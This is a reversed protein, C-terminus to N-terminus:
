EEKGKFFDKAEQWTSKRKNRGGLHSHWDTFDKSYELRRVPTFMNTTDAIADNTTKFQWSTGDIEKAMPIFGSLGFPGLAFNVSARTDTREYAAVTYPDTYQLGTKGEKSLNSMKLDFYNLMRMAGSVHDNNSGFLAGVFPIRTKIAKRRDQESKKYDNYPRGNFGYIADAVYMPVDLYQKADMTMMRGVNDIHLLTTGVFNRDEVSANLLGVRENVFTAYQSTTMDVWFGKTPNGNEDLPQKGIVPEFVDDLIPKFINDWVPGPMRSLTNTVLDYDEKRCPTGTFMSAAVKMMSWGYEASQTPLFGSAAASYVISKTVMTPVTDDDQEDDEMMRKLVLFSAGIISGMLPVGDKTASMGSGIARFTTKAFANGAFAIPQKFALMSSALMSLFIKPRTRAMDAIGWGWVSKNGKSFDGRTYDMFQRIAEGQTHLVEKVIDPIDDSKVEAGSEEIMAIKTKIADNLLVKGFGRVLVSNETGAMSLMAGWHGSQLWKPDFGISNLGIRIFSLPGNEMNARVLNDLAKSSKGSLYDSVQDVTANLKIMDWATIGEEYEKVSIGKDYIEKEKNAGSIWPAYEEVLTRIQTNRDTSDFSDVTYDKILSLQKGGESLSMATSSAGILNSMYSNKLLNTFVLSMYRSMNKATTWTSPAKSYHKLYETSTKEKSAHDKIHDMIFNARRIYRKVEGEVTDNLKGYHSHMYRLYGYSNELYEDARAYVSRRDEYTLASDMMSRVKKMNSLIADVGKSLDQRADIDELNGFIKKISDLREIAMDYSRYDFDLSKTEISKLEAISAKIKDDLQSGEVIKSLPIAANYINEIRQVLRDAMGITNEIDKAALASNMEADRGEGGVNKILKGAADAIAKDMRNADEISMGQSVTILDNVLDPIIKRYEQIANYAKDTLTDKKFAMIAYIKEIHKEVKDAVRPRNHKWLLYDHHVTTKNSNVVNDMMKVSLEEALATPSFKLQQIREVLGTMFDGDAAHGQAFSKVNGYEKFLGGFDADDSGSTPIYGMRQKFEIVQLPQKGEDIRAKNVVHIYPNLREESVFRTLIQWHIDSLQLPDFGYKDLGDMIIDAMQTGVEKHYFAFSGEVEGKGTSALHETNPNNKTGYNFESWFKDRVDKLMQLAKSPTDVKSKENEFIKDSSMMTVLDSYGQGPANYDFNVADLYKMYKNVIHYGEKGYNSIIYNHFDEYKKNFEDTRAKVYGTLKTARNRVKDIVPCQRFLQNLDNQLAITSAITASVRESKNGLRIGRIYGYMSETVAKNFWDPQNYADLESIIKDFSFNFLLDVQKTSRVKGERELKKLNNYEKVSKVYGNTIVEITKDLTTEAGSLSLTDSISAFYDPNKAHLARLISHLAQAKEVIPKMERLLIESSQKVTENNGCDGKGM